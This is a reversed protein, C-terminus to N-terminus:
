GRHIKEALWLRVWGITISTRPFNRPKKEPLIDTQGSERLGSCRFRAFESCDLVCAGALAVAAAAASAVLVLAAM